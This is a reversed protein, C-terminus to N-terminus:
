ECIQVGRAKLEEREELLIFCSNIKELRASLLKDFEDPTM